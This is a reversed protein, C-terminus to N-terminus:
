RRPATSLATRERGTVHHVNKVRCQQAGAPTWAIAEVAEGPCIIDSGNSRMTLKSASDLAACDDAMKLRYIGGENSQVYLTTPGSRNAGTVYQGNFCAPAVDRPLTNAYAAAQAAYDFRQGNDAQAPGTSLLAAAAALLLM